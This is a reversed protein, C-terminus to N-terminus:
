THPSPYKKITNNWVTNLDHTYSKQSPETYPFTSEKWVQHLPGTGNVLKHAVVSGGLGMLVLDKRLEVSRM